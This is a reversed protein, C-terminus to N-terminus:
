AGELARVAACMRRLSGLLAQRSARSTLVIANDGDTAAAVAELAGAASSMGHREGGGAEGPLTLFADLTSHWAPATRQSEACPMGRKEISSVQGAVAARLSASAQCALCGWGM